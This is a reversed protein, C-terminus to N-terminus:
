ALRGKAAQSRAYLFLAVGIVFIGVPMAPGAMEPPLNTAMFLQYGFALVMGVISAAFFPVALHKRMLLLLSAALASWVALGWGFSAWVPVSDMYAWLTAPDSDPMMTRMWGENHTRSMTYDVCAFGNWLTALGGVIWLHAPAGPAPEVITDTM